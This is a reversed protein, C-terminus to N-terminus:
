QPKGLKWQQLPSTSLADPSSTYAEVLWYGGHVPSFTLLGPVLTVTVTAGPGVTSPAHPGAPSWFGTPHGGDISVMFHPTLPHATPNHVTVTVSRLVQTDSTTRFGAVAVTLPATTFAVALAVAAAVLPVGVVTRGMWPRFRSSRVASSVREPAAVTVAGVLAVPVFDLLYSSLSRAPIFLVVPVLFLWVRKLAPYWVVMAVVLAVFVLVGAASLWPFVVGGTVGHLALTVLGQGDAVLPQSLPLVSGHMWARPSWVIFPLNIAVFVAAVTGLYRGAVAWPPRGWRRAELGVGVVLFPLCFWPTQKISCAMGLAVPGIWGALGAGRGSAFRDWRWVAVVLFPLFLADTGGSSFMGVYVSTLLLVVALWRLTAPFLVFLLVGTVLWAGLDTWDVIEHHFGIGMLATQVLFSGAPYSVADVHGGNVTYTWFLTPNHLFTAAAGMSTTYPDHGHLLARAAVQDIAASDTSYYQRVHIAVAQPVGVAFLGAVLGAGQAVRAGPDPVLWLAALGVVGALVMLPSLWGTGSWSTWQGWLGLGSVLVGLWVLSWGGRQLLVEAPEGDGRVHDDGPAVPTPRDDLTV